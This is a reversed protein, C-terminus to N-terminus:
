ASQGKENEPAYKTCEIADWACSVAARVSDLDDHIYIRAPAISSWGAYRQLDFPSMYRAMMSLNSHRLQHLTMGPCGIADRVADHTSDGAWWRHLLQPRLLGGRTNCCLYPSDAFGLARRVDRWRDVKKQLRESLPLIRVGAASKPAGVTGDKEKVAQHVYALGDRVDSDLLACAEARRLGLCAMLYLAMTRGDLPLEDIRNLLLQLEIPSLAEKEPTDVKPQKVSALPNRPIRGDDVAQQFIAHMYNHFKALTAGSLEGDGKAPHRKLWLLANRCDDPAIDGLKMEAIPSRCLAAVNRRDNALTNPAFDGSERRWLAWSAAYPAFQESDPVEQELESVWAKIADQADTWTGHWRLSRRGADTVAWFRWDRCRAKPGKKLQQITYSRVKM